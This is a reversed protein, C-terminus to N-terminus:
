TRETPGVPGSRLQTPDSQRSQKTYLWISVYLIWLLDFAIFTYAVPSISGVALVASIWALWTPWVRTRFAVVAAAGVMAALAVPLAVGIVAGYVDYIITAADVGIGAGTGGRAGGVQMVSFAM